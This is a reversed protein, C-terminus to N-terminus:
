GGASLKQRAMAQMRSIRRVMIIFLVTAPISFLESAVSWRGSEAYVELTEAGVGKRFAVNAAIVALIALVWWGTVLKTHDASTWSHPNASARWIERMSLLPLFFWGIPIFYSLVTWTRNYKLGAAGLHTLNERVRVLWYLFLLGSVVFIGVQTWAVIQQRFDNAGAESDFAPTGHAGTAIADSLFVSQMLDSAIGVVDGAIGVGALAVVWWTLTTVDRYSGLTPSQSPVAAAITRAVHRETSNEEWVQDDPALLGVEIHHVLESAPFPGQETGHRSYYWNGEVVTGEQPELASLM